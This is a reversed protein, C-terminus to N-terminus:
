MMGICQVPMLVIMATWRSIGALSMMGEVPVRTIKPAQDGSVEPLTWGSCSASPRAPPVPPGTPAVLRLVKQITAVASDIADATLGAKRAICDRCMPRGVIVATTLLATEPM